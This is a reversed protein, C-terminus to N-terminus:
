SRRTEIPCSTAANYMAVFAESVASTITTGDRVFSYKITAWGNGTQGTHYLPLIYADYEVRWIFGTIPTDGGIIVKEEKIAEPVLNGNEWHDLPTWTLTLEDGESLYDSLDPVQVRVAHEISPESPDYDLSTCNLVDWEGIPVTDPFAPAEPVVINASVDVESIPSRQHNPSDRHSIQYHVPLAPNNGELEIASWPVSVEIEDGPLDTAKVVYQAGSLRLTSWYFDIIEGENLPAYLPLTLKAALGNDAVTLVNETASVEGFVKPAVLNPNTPDPWDPLEPGILSFDVAVEVDLPGFEMGGRLVKYSVVVSVEGTAAGYESKLVGVPVAVSIPFSPASGLEEARLVSTGWTVELRDSPKWNDFEEIEVTTGAYADELDLLGDQALPVVPDKLNEPLDDLAVIVKTYASFRSRNTAKDILVYLCYCGGDGTARVINAPVILDQPTGLEGVAAPPLGTPDEPLPEAGWWVAFRDGPKQVGPHEPITVVVGDPNAVLYDDTIPEAPLVPAPPEANGWPPTYDCVMPVERSHIDEDTWAAITYRLRYPGDPQLRDAPVKLRLPFAEPPAPSTVKRQDVGVFKNEERGTGTAWELIATEHFSPPVNDFGPWKEISVFLGEGAAIVDKNLTGDQPDIIAGPDFVPDELAKGHNRLAKEKRYAVRTEAAIQKKDTM